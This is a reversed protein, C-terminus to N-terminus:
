STAALNDGDSEIFIVDLCNGSCEPNKLTQNRGEM